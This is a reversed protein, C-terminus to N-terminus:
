VVRKGTGAVGVRAAVMRSEADLLKVAKSVEYLHKQSQRIESIIIAELNIWATARLLIEKRKLASCCEVMHMSWTKKIWEETSPCKPQKWRKTITFLKATFTPICINRQSAAKM